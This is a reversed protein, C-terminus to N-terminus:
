GNTMDRLMTPTIEQGNPIDGWEIDGDHVALMFERTTGGRSVFPSERVLDRPDYHAAVVGADVVQYFIYDGRFGKNRMPPYANGDIKTMLVTHDTGENDVVNVTKVEGADDPFTDRISM